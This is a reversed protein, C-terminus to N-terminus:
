EKYGEAQMRFLKAYIGNERLLEKHSGYEKLKGQEIVAIKDAMRVTSFRHSILLTTKDKSLQEFRQFLRYEARADVAATPEDLVLIPADKFFARALAIKQWQGGSLETGEKKLHRGLHTKYKNTLEKVFEWAESKKSADHISEKNKMSEVNGFGINELVKAEYKMFDQFIVGINGYLSELSYEKINIGDILIEGENVDYLRTLLKVLTTKGSGNEGVLALSESPKILLNFNKLSPKKAGPYYFTVNKFEIGRKLKQPFSIPNKSEIIKPKLGLVNVLPTIFAASSSIDGISRTFYRVNGAFQFLLAWLFTLRGITIEGNIFSKVIIWAAIASFIGSVAGNLIFLGSEKIAAIKQKKIYSGFLSDFRGIFHEKLNFLKMEKIAQPNNMMMYRYYGAHKSISSSSSFASWVIESAKFMFIVGPVASALALIVVVPSFLYLAGIIFSANIFQSILYTFQSSIQNLRWLGAESKKIESYYDPNEFYTMDLSSIKEMMKRSSLFDMKQNHINRLLYQLDWMLTEFIRVTGYIVMVGVLGIGLKSLIALEKGVTIKDIIIKFIWPEIIGIMGGLVTIIFIAITLKVSSEWTWRNALKLAEWKEKLNNFFKGM